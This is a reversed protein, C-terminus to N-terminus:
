HWTCTVTGPISSHGTDARDSKDLINEQFGYSVTKQFGSNVFHHNDSQMRDENMAVKYENSCYKLLQSSTSLLYKKFLNRTWFPKTGRKVREQCTDVDRVSGNTTPISSTLTGVTNGNEDTNINALTEIIPAKTDHLGEVSLISKKSELSISFTGSSWFALRAPEITFPQDGDKVQLLPVPRDMVIDHYTEDFKAMRWSLGDSVNSCFMKGCPKILTLCSKAIKQEELEKEQLTYELIQDSISCTASHELAAFFSDKANQRRRSGVKIFTKKFQSQLLTSTSFLRMLPEM